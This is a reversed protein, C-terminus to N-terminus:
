GITDATQNARVLITINGVTICGATHCTRIINSTQDTRVFITIDQVTPSRAINGTNICNATKNAVIIPAVKDAIPCFTIYRHSEMVLAFLLCTIDRTSTQYTFVVGTINGVAM